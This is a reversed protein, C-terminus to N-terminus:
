TFLTPTCKQSQIIATRQLLTISKETIIINTRDRMEQEVQRLKNLIPQHDTLATRLKHPSRISHLGEIIQTLEFTASKWRAFLPDRKKPVSQSRSVTDLIILSAADETPLCPENPM